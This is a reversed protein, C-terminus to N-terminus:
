VTSYFNSLRIRYSLILTQFVVLMLIQDIQETDTGDGSTQTVDHDNRNINGAVFSHQIRLPDTKM